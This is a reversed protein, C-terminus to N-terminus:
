QFIKLDKNGVDELKVSTDELVSGRQCENQLASLLDKEDTFEFVESKFFVEQNM